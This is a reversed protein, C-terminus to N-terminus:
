HVVSFRGSMTQSGTTLVYEYAGAVLGNADIAITHSGAPLTGEADRLVERGLLDRVVLTVNASAALTFRLTSSTAVPNPSLSIPQSAADPTVGSEGIAFPDSTGIAGSAYKVQIIYGSQATSPVTTWLYSTLAASLGRAFPSFQGVAPNYLDLELSEGLYGSPNWHITTQSTGTPLNPAGDVTVNSVKGSDLISFQSSVGIVGNADTLRVFAATSSVNPVLWNYSSPSSLTTIPNWTTMSDTSYEFAMSSEKVPGTTTFNIAHTTGVLLSDNAAPSTVTIIAMPKIGVSFAPGVSDKARSSPDGIRLMVSSNYAADPLQWEYPSQSTSSVVANWTQGGDVSYDISANSVGGGSAWVIPIETSDGSISEGSAPLIPWIAAPASSALKTIYGTQDADLYTQFQSKNGKFVSFAKIRLSDANWDSSVAIHYHRRIPWSKATKVAFLDGLVKGGVARAVNENEFNDISTYSQEYIEQTTQPGDETLVAVTYYKSTDETPMKSLDLPTIDLDFDVASGSHVANVIRFDIIPAQMAQSVVSDYWPNPWFLVGGSVYAGSMAVTRGPSAWPYGSVNLAGAITDEAMVYLPEGYGAPGHWSIAVLNEKMAAIMSDITYAGYPCYGCWNGTGEEILAHRKYQASSTSGSVIVIAIIAAAAFLTRSFKPLRLSFKPLRLTNM